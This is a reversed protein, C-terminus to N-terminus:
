NLAILNGSEAKSNPQKETDMALHTQWRLLSSSVTLGLRSIHLAGEQKTCQAVWLCRCFWGRSGEEGPGGEM